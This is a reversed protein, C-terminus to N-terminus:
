TEFRIQDPPHVALDPHLAPLHVRPLFDEKHAEHVAAVEERHEPVHMDGAEGQHDGLLLVLVKLAQTGDTRSVRRKSAKCVGISPVGFLM